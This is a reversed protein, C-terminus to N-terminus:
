RRERDYIKMRDAFEDAFEPDNFEKPGSGSSAISSNAIWDELAIYLEHEDPDEDLHDLLDGVTMKLIHEPFEEDGHHESIKTYAQELLITDNKNM